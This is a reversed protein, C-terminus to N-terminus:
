FSLNLSGLVNAKIQETSLYKSVEAKDDPLTEELDKMNLVSKKKKKKEGFSELNLDHM